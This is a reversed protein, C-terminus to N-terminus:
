PSPKVRLRASVSSPHPCQPPRPQRPQFRLSSLASRFTASPHQCQPPRPQFRLSFLASRFTAPPLQYQPPRPQFRLSSLASRFTAPPLQYQPPRPPPRGERTPNIRWLTGQSACLRLPASSSLHFATSRCRCQPPRRPPRGERPTSIFVGPRHEQLPMSASKVEHKFENNYGRRTVPPM